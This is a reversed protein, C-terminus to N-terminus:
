SEKIITYGLEKTSHDIFKGINSAGWQSCVLVVEGSPLTIIDSADVYYRKIGGGIGKDKNSVSASLSVVGKGGGQIGTPFAKQLDAFSSPANDEVYKKVVALVLKGKGYSNGDFKYTSYDKVGTTIKTLADPDDVDDKLANLVSILLTKNEKIFNDLIKQEENSIAMIHEGKENDTQYSLCQLYIKINNISNPDKCKYMLPEIVYDVLEQYTVRIYHEEKQITSANYEPFLFIYIPEFYTDRDAFEEEGWNYYVVTQDGKEGNEKSNVKNEIIIPLIKEKTKILILIDISKSNKSSDIKVPIEREATADLIFDEDYFKYILASDLRAKENDPKQKILELSTVFQYLPYNRLLHSSSPSLSWAIFNSHMLEWRSTKTIGFINGNHYNNYEIYSKSRKIDFINKTLESM